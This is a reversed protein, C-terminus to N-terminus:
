FAHSLGFMFLNVGSRENVVEYLHRECEITLVASTSLGVSVGAGYGLGFGRDKGSPLVPTRADSVAWGLKNSVRSFSVPFTQPAFLRLTGAPTTGESIYSVVGDPGIRRPFIQLAVINWTRHGSRSNFVAGISTLCNLFDRYAPFASGAVACPQSLSTAPETQSSPSCDECRVLEVIRSNEASSESLAMEQSCCLDAISLLGLFAVSETISILNKTM